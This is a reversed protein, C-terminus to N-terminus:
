LTMYGSVKCGIIDLIEGMRDIGRMNSLGKVEAILIVDFSAVTKVSEPNSLFSQELSLDTKGSMRAALDNYLGIIKDSAATSVILVKKDAFNRNIISAIQENIADNGATDKKHFLREIFKDIGLDPRKTISNPLSGYIPLGYIAQLEDDSHLKGRVVYSAVHICGILFIGLIFGLAIYKKVGDMNGVSAPKEPKVINNQAKKANTIGTELTIITDDTVKQENRINVDVRLFSISSSLILNHNMVKNAEDKVASEIKDLYFSLIKDVQERSTGIITVSLSNDTQDTNWTILERIFEDNQIGTIAKLEDGYTDEYLLSRYIGLLNDAPDQNFGEPLIDLVSQDVDVYYECRAVWENYPDIQMKISNAKYNNLSNIQDTYSDIVKAYSDYTEQYMSLEKEYSKIDEESIKSANHNKYYKLGGFAAAGLLAFLIISRWRALIHFFLDRISIEIEYNPNKKM